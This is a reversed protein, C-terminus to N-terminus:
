GSNYALLDNLIYLLLRYILGLAFVLVSLYLLMYFSVHNVTAYLLLFGM